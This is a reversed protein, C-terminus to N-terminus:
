FYDAVKDILDKINQEQGLDPKKKVKDFYDTFSQRVQDLTLTKELEDPHNTKLRQNYGWTFQRGTSDILRFQSGYEHYYLDPDVYFDEYKYVINLDLGNKIIIPFEIKNFGLEFTDNLDKLRENRRKDTWNNFFIKIRDTLM